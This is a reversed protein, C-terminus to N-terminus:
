KTYRKKYYILYFLDKSKTLPWKMIMFALHIELNFERLNEHIIKSFVKYCTKLLNIRRYNKVNYRRKYNIPSSYKEEVETTDSM